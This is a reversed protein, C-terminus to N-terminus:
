TCYLGNRIIEGQKSETTDREQSMGRPMVNLYTKIHRVTALFCKHRLLGLPATGLNCQIQVRPNLNWQICRKNGTISIHTSKDIDYKGKEHRKAHLVILFYVVAVVSM